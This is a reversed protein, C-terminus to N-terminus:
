AAASPPRLDMREIFKWYIANFLGPISITKGSYFEAVSQPEAVTPNVAAFLSLFGVGLVVLERKMM